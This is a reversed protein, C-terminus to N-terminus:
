GEAESGVHKRAREETHIASVREQEVNEASIFRLNTIHHYHPKTAQPIRPTLHNEEIQLHPRRDAEEVKETPPNRLRPM